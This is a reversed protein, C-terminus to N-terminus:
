HHYGTNRLISFARYLQELLIVRALEHPLTIRGLSIKKSALDLISKDLGYAGGVVFCPKLSNLAAKELWDALERSGINEGREDLCIVTEGPRLAAAIDKAERQNRLTVALSSDADRVSSEELKCLGSLLKRYHEAADKWFPARLGGVALIRIKQM